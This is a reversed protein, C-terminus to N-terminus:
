SLNTCSVLISPVLKSAVGLSEHITSTCHPIALGHSPLLNIAASMGSDLHICLLQMESTM